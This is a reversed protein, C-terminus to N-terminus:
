RANDFTRRQLVRLLLISILLTGLAMVVSAAAAGSVDDTGFADRYIKMLPFFSYSISSSLTRLTMPEGYAQLTGILSFLLTLLLAPALLPIKIHWAIRWEPAGDLKAAEYIEAPISRLATYLIIMNFGVAAWIAINALSGYISNSSLFDFDPLGIANLAYNFPSTTPLYMFGWLLTAIVGPVAYPLFIATRAFRTAKVGPLDLLLAFLLALGLTLPVAIFGFLALRGFSAIFEPNTLYSVYNEFGVFVQTRKGFAGGDVRLGVFSLYIAYGIPIVLFLVFLVIAPALFAWPALTPRISGRRKRERVTDQRESTPNTVLAEPPGQTLSSM